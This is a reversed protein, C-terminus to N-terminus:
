FDDTRFEREAAGVRLAVGVFVMNADRRSINDYLPKLWPQFGSFGTNHQRSTILYSQAISQGDAKESKIDNEIEGISNNVAAAFQQRASTRLGNSVLWTGATAVIILVLVVTIAPYYRKINEINM